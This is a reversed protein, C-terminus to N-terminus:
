LGTHRIYSFLVTRQYSYSRLKQFHCWTQRQRPREISTWAKAMPADTEASFGLHLRWRKEQSCGVTNGPWHLWELTDQTGFGLSSMWLANSVSARVTGDRSAERMSFHFFRSLAAWGELAFDSHPTWFVYVGSECYPLITMDKEM